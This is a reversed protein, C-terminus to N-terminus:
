RGPCVSRTLPSSPRHGQRSRCSGEQPETLQSTLSALLAEGGAPRSAHVCVWGCGVCRAPARARVCVSVRVAVFGTQRPDTRDWRATQGRLPRPLWLSQAWPRQGWAGGAGKGAGAASLGAGARRPSAEPQATVAGREPERGAALLSRGEARGEATPAPRGGAGVRCSDRARGLLLPPRRLAPAWVAWSRPLCVPPTTVGRADAEARGGSSRSQRAPLRPPPPPAPAPAGVGAEKRGGGEKKEAPEVYCLDTARAGRSERGKACERVQHSAGLTEVKQAEGGGNMQRVERGLQLAPASPYGLDRM